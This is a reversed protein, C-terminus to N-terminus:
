GGVEKAMKMKQASGVKRDRKCECTSGECAVDGINVAASSADREELGDERNAAKELLLPRGVSFDVTNFFPGIRLFPRPPSFGHKACNPVSPM